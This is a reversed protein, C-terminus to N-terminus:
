SYVGSWVRGGAGAILKIATLAEGIDVPPFGPNIPTIGLSKAERRHTNATDLLINIEGSLKVLESFKKAAEKQKSMVEALLAKGAEDHHKGAAAKGQAETKAQQAVAAKHRLESRELIRTREVIYEQENSLEDDGAGEGVLREFNAKAENLQERDYELDNLMSQAVAAATSISQTIEQITNM